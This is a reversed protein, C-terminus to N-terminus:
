PNIKHLEATTLAFVLTENFGEGESVKLKSPRFPSAKSGAMGWVQGTLSM